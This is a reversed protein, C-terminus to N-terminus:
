KKDRVSAASLELIKNIEAIQEESQEKELVIGFITCPLDEMIFSYSVMYADYIDSSGCNITGTVKYFERDNITVTEGSTKKYSNTTYYNRIDIVLGSANIEFAEEANAATANKDCRPVVCKIAGAKMDDIFDVFLKSFGAELLRYAPVDIYIDKLPVKYTKGLLDTDTATDTSSVSGNDSSSVGSDKGAADGAKKEDTCCCLTLILFVALFACVYKKFSNM